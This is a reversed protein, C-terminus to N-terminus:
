GGNGARKPSKPAASIARLSGRLGLRREHGLIQQNFDEIMDRYDAAYLKHVDKKTAIMHDVFDRGYYDVM